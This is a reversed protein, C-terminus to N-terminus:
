CHDAMKFVQVPCIMDICCQVRHLHQVRRELIFIQTTPQGITIDSYHLINHYSQLQSVRQVECILSQRLMLATSLIYIPRLLIINVLPRCGCSKAVFILEGTSLHFRLVASNGICPSSFIFFSTCSKLDEGFNRDWAYGTPSELSGGVGVQGSTLLRIESVGNCIQIVYFLRSSCYNKTFQM